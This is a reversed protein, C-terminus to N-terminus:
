HHPIKKKWVWLGGLSLLSFGVISGSIISLWNVARKLGDWSFLSPDSSSQPADDTVQPTPTQTLLDSINTATLADGTSVITLQFIDTSAADPMDSSSPMITTEEAGPVPYAPATGNAIDSSDPTPTRNPTSSVTLPYITYNRTPSRYIYPTATHYTYVYPTWTFYTPTISPTLTSTRTPTPSNTPTPTITSTTVLGSLAITGSFASTMLGRYTDAQIIELRYYYDTGIAIQPDQFAYTNNSQPPIWPSVRAFPGNPSLSRQMYYGYINKENGTTWNLVVQNTYYNATFSYLALNTADPALLGVAFPQYALNSLNPSGTNGVSLQIEHTSSNKPFNCTTINEDSQKWSKSTIDFWLLPSVAPSKGDTVCYKSTEIINPCVDNQSYNFFLNLSTPAAGNLFIDWYNGCAALKNPSTSFPVNQPDGSGYNIVFLQSSGNSQFGIQNNFAYRKNTNVSVLQANLGPSSTNHLVPAGLRKNDVAGCNMTTTSFSIGAGWYNHDATGNGNTGCDVQTGNQNGFINNAVVALTGKSSQSLVGYSSNGTIQNFLITANGQNNNQLVVANQGGSLDNSQILISDNASGNISILDRGPSGCGGDDITLNQITVGAAITLMPESLVCASGSYSLKSNGIGQLIMNQNLLVAKDKISYNGLITVTSNAPSADIADKLGTGIGDALDDGSNIYCPSHSGCDGSANAAYANNSAPAIQINTFGQQTTTWNSSINEQVNVMIFGSKTASAPIRLYFDLTDQYPQNLNAQASTLWSYGAPTATGCSPITVYAAGSSGSPATGVSNPDVSGWSSPIYICVQVNSSGSSFSVQMNLRQGAACGSGPCASPSIMSVNAAPLALPASSIGLYALLLALALTLRGINIM